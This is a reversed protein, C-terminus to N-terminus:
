TEISIVQTLQPDNVWPLKSAIFPKPEITDYFVPRYNNKEIEQIDIEAM